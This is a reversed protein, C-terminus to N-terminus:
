EATTIPLAAVEESSAYGTNYINIRRKQARAHQMKSPQKPESSLM